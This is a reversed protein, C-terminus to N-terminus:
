VFTNFLLQFTAVSMNYHLIYCQDSFIILSLIDPLM